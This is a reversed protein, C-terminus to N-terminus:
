TYPTSKYLVISETDNRGKRAVPTSRLSEWLKAPKAEKRQDIARNQEGVSLVRRSPIINM